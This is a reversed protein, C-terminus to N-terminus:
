QTGMPVRQRQEKVPFIPVVNPDVEQNSGLTFPNCLYVVWLVYGACLLGELIAAALQM